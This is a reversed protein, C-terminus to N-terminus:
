RRSRKCATHVASDHVRTVDDGCRISRGCLPCRRGNAAGVRERVRSSSSHRAPRSDM